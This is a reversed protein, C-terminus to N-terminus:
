FTNSEPRDATISPNVRKQPLFDSLFTKQLSNRQYNTHKHSYLTVFKKTIARDRSYIFLDRHFM